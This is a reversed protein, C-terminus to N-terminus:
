RGGATDEVEDRVSFVIMFLLFVITNLLLMSFENAVGSTLPYLLMGMGFARSMGNGLYRSLWLIAAVSGIMTVLNLAAVWPSVYWAMLLNGPIGAMFNSYGEYSETGAILLREPTIAPMFGSGLLSVLGQKIYYLPELASSAWQFSQSNQQIYAVNSFASLRGIFRGFLLEWISLDLQMDGRLRGRFEYLANITAPLAAGAALILWPARRFLIMLEVSYKICMAIVIYNFAGIGARLFGITLMLGIALLDTPAHKRTALIFFAGLYFPDIRNLIQIFPMILSPAQYTESDMVGVGFLLTAAIHAAFGALLFILLARQSTRFVRRPPIRDFIGALKWAGVFPFLCAVLVVLLIGASLYVPRPFFDGNFQGLLVCYILSACGAAVFLLYVIWVREQVSPRSDKHMTM